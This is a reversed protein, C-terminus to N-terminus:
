NKTRKVHLGFTKVEFPALDVALERKENDYKCPTGLPRELLDLEEVRAFRSAIARPITVIAQKTSSGAIEAVRLVVTDTPEWERMKMATIMVNAPVGFALSAPRPTTTLTKAKAATRNMVSPRAVPAQNYAEAVRKAQGTPKGDMAVLAGGVHPALAFRCSAPGIGVNTPVATGDRNKREEREMFAWTRTTTDPYLASKQMTLHLKGDRTDYGYKGENLLTLGWTNGPTSVDVYKQMPKEVRAKDGATSPHTNRALACYMQDSISYEASTAHSCRVKLMVGKEQWDAHWFIHVAPDDKFLAITTSVKSIGLIKEIRLSAFVVGQGDITISVDKDQPYNKPFDWYNEKINWAQYESDDDDYGITLATDDGTVLNKGGNVGTSTLKVIAGTRPDLEVRTIGNDIYPWKGAEVSISVASGPKTAPEGVVLRGTVVGLSPLPLVVWWGAPRPDGLSDPEPAIPQCEYSISKGDRDVEFVAALPATGAPPKKGKGSATAPIFVRTTRAEAIPNFVQVLGAGAAPNALSPLAGDLIKMGTQDIEPWIEVLDDLVEPICSGPLVDHFQNLLVRRWAQGLLDTPYEYTYDALHAMTAAIEAAQLIGELKRNWRKIAPHTTLTGQHYELYLEDKWTLLNPGYQEVDKFYNHVSSWKLNMGAMPCAKTFAIMSGVEQHTPGHGGDGKGMFLAVPKVWSKNDLSAVLNAFEDAYSWILKTGPKPLRRFIGYRPFQSFLNTGTRSSTVLVKSGDPSAWWFHTLPFDNTACWTMKSTLFYKAGSKALIQPLGANYGFTDPYWEAEPLKGFEDRYLMMGHLRQRVFAEGSPMNCDAEIWSGGVPEINGKKITEKVESFFEPYFEKMWAMIQPSSVAFRFDPVIKSHKIAKTLTRKAKKVTQEYRWKYAMDLHSEGCCFIELNEPKCGAEAIKGKWNTIEETVDNIFDKDNALEEVWLHLQEDTDEEHEELTSPDIRLNGSVKGYKEPHM